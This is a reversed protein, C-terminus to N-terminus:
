SNVQHLREMYNKPIQGLRGEFIYHDTGLHHLVPSLLRNILKLVEIRLYIVPPLQQAAINSYGTFLIGGPFSVVIAKIRYWTEFNM